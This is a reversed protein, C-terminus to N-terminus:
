PIAYLSGATAAIALLGDPQAEPSSAPADDSVELATLNSREGLAATQMQEAAHQELYYTADVLPANSAAHRLPSAFVAVLAVLAVTPIAFAPRLWRTLGSGAPRANRVQDWVLAKVMSPLEREDAAMAARLSEGLEVEADYELRCVGCQALHEHAQADDNAALEGHIYDILTENSLHQTM